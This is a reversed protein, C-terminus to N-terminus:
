LDKAAESKSKKAQEALWASDFLTITAQDIRPGPSLVRLTAVGQQWVHTVQVTRAGGKTQYPSESTKPPGFKDTLASAVVNAGSTPITIHLRAVKDQNDFTASVFEVKVNAVTALTTSSLGRGGCARDTCVWQPNAALLEAKDMGLRVGKLELAPISALTQQQAYAANTSEVVAIFVLVTVRRIKKM